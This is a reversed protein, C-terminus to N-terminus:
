WYFTLAIFTSIIDTKNMYTHFSVHYIYIYIRLMQCMIYLRNNEEYHIFSDAKLGLSASYKISTSCTVIAIESMATLVPSKFLCRWRRKLKRRLFFKIESLEQAATQLSVSHAKRWNSPAAHSIFSSPVEQPSFWTHWFLVQTSLELRFNTQWLLAVVPAKAVTVSSGRCKHNPAETRRPPRIQLLCPRPVGGRSSFTPTGAELWIADRVDSNRIKNMMMTIKKTKLCNILFYKFGLGVFVGGVNMEVGVNSIFWEHCFFYWIVLFCLWSIWLWQHCLIM